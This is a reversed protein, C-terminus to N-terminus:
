HRQGREPREAVLEINGIVGTQAIVGDGGSQGARFVLVGVGGFAREAKDDSLVAHWLKLHVSRCLGIRDDLALRNMDRHVALIEEAARNGPRLYIVVNDGLRKEEVVGALATVVAELIKVVVSPRALCEAVARLGDGAAAARGVSLPLERYVDR